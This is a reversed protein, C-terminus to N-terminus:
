AAVRVAERGTFAQWREIIVQAYKPDLEVVAARRGLQEAAILTTGSGAFPDYVLEADRSSNAIARAVLAVPKMTPHAQSRAPRKEEWVSEQTRDDIFYHPGGARWGYLISEHRYHYDARGFVIHDKVWVISHRMPLDADILALRFTMEFDGPPSFVYFAGGLKLPAARMAGGVLRRTGETDLDDNLVSLNDIDKRRRRKQMERRRADRDPLHPDVVVPLRQYGIGYPPDTVILDISAGNLLRAVDEANTSDGCLLRHAGLEYLEGAKVSPATPVDPADDPETLGDAPRKGLDGLLARLADDDVAVDALLAELAGQDTEAMAGLPDLTALVLAEEADTLDVYLVPVSPENRELAREVRAHGDVLRGTRENVIVQQVWGVERLAGELADVQRKPHTRWNRPNATLEAPAVEASRVIRNKWAPRARTATTM